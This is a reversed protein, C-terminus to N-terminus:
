IVREVIRGNECRYTGDEYGVSSWDAPCKQGIRPDVPVVVPEPTKWADDPAPEVKPAVVKRPRGPGRKVPQPEAVEPM